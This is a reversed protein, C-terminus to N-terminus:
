IINRIRRNRRGLRGIRNYFPVIIRIISFARSGTIKIIVLDYLFILICFFINVTIGIKKLFVILRFGSILLNTIKELSQLEECRSKWNQHCWTTGLLKGLSLKHKKNKSIIITDSLM